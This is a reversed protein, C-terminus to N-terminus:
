PRSCALLPIRIRLVYPPYYNIRLQSTHVVHLYELFDKILAVDRGAEDIVKHFVHWLLEPVLPVALTKGSRRLFIKFSSGPFDSM